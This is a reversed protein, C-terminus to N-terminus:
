ILGSIENSHRTFHSKKIVKMFRLIIKARRLLNVRFPSRSCMRCKLYFTREKEVQLRANFLNNSGSGVDSGQFHPCIFWRRSVVDFHRVPMGPFAIEAHRNVSPRSINRAGYIIRPTPACDELAHYNLLLSSRTHDRAIPSKNNSISPKYRPM